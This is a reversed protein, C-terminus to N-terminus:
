PVEAEAYSFVSAEQEDTEISGPRLARVHDIAAQPELGEAVFWTALLTGTRGLGGLCHVGVREGAARRERVVAVFVRQQELTPPTFDEIPLHLGDIGWPELLAPDMPVERASVLLALGQDALFPLDDVYPQPMGALTEDVFSFGSMEVVEPRGTHDWASHAVPDTTPPSWPPPPAVQPGVAPRTSTSDVEGTPAGACAVLGLVWWRVRAEGAM